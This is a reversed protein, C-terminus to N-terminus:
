EFIPECTEQVQLNVHDDVVPVSTSVSEFVVIPVGYVLMYAGLYKLTTIWFSEVAEVLIDNM